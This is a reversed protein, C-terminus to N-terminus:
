LLGTSKSYSIWCHSCLVCVHVALKANTTLSETFFFLGTQPTTQARFTARTLLLGTLGYVSLEKLPLLFTLIFLMCECSAKNEPLRSVLAVVLKCMFMEGSAKSTKKRFQWGYGSMEPCTAKM